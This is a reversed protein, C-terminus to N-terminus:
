LRPKYYLTLSAEPGTWGAKTKVAASFRNLGPRLELVIESGVRQYQGQQWRGVFTEFEPANEAFLKVKAIGKDADTKALFMLTQDFVDRLDQPDDTFRRNPPADAPAKQTRWVVFDDAYGVRDQGLLPYKRYDDELKLRRMKGNDEILEPASLQNSRLVVAFNEFLKLDDLTAPVRTGDSSVKTVGAANKSAYLEALVRGRLPAGDKEFHVDNTPDMIVWKDYEDSWVEVIFHGLDVYRAHLGLARCAQLFVVAYQSCFGYNKHKRVLDLIEVADWPPYYFPTVTNKWQSRAWRRLLVIKEFQTRGPAVVEDLKERKRLLLLRPHEWNEELLPYRTFLPEGSKLSVVEVASWRAWGLALVLAGAAALWLSKRARPVPQAQPTKKSKSM